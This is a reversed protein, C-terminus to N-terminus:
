VAVGLAEKVRKAREEPTLKEDLVVAVAADAQAAKKELLVLRREGLAVEREKLRLKASDGIIKALASLDQVDGTKARALLYAREQIHALTAADYDGEAGAETRVAQAFARAQAASERWGHSVYWGCLAGTSVSVGHEAQLWDVVAQYSHNQEGLRRAIEARLAPDLGAVTSDARPKKARRKL